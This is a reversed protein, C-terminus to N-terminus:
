IGRKRIVEEVVIKDNFPIIKGNINQTKEHGKGLVGVCDGSRALLLAKEIAEARDLVIEYNTMESNGILEKIIDMPDEDRPNDSTFVVYDSLGLSYGGMYKRKERDRHGGAGIVTIIRGETVERLSSLVQKVAGTNHAYDIIIDIGMSSKLTQARGEITPVTRIFPLIEDLGYGISYFYALVSLVNYINYKGFLPYRVEGAFRGKVYLSFETEDLQLKLQRACFDAQESLGYTLVRSNAANLISGSHPDDYNIIAAKESEYDAFQIFPRMKTFLYDEFTKHYDMHDNTANTFIFRDFDIQDVRNEKIGHSSVEMVIHSIGEKKGEALMENLELAMPTTHTAPRVQGVRWENTGILGTYHGLASLIHHLLYTITTKGNTGTVGVLHLQKSPSQYFAASARALAKKANHVRFYPVESFVADEGVVAIAGKGIADGVYRHGDQDEGKIAFFVSGAVVCRSDYAITTVEHDKGSYPLDLVKSLELLRM